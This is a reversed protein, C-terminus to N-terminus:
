EIDEPLYDRLNKEPVLKILEEIATFDGIDVDYAIQELVQDILDQDIMRDQAMARKSQFGTM